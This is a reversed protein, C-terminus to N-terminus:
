ACRACRGLLDLRHHEAQFGAAGAADAFAEALTAEIEPSVTFDSVDGCSSCILHHHHGALDEALEFRAFEDTGVIRHVVGAQELATLNRYASSQALSPRAERLEAITIPRDVAALVEVIARRGSTYRQDVDRLRQVATTHVDGALLDPADHLEAM